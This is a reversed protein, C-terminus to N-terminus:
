GIFKLCSDSGSNKMVFIKAKHLIQPLNSLTRVGPLETLRYLFGCLLCRTENNQRDVSVSCRDWRAPEGSAASIICDNALWTASRRTTAQATFSAGLFLCIVRLVFNVSDVFVFALVSTSAMM